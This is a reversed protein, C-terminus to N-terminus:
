DNRDDAEGSSWEIALIHRPQALGKLPRLGRDDVSVDADLEDAVRETVLIEGAGAEDAVRSALNVVRGLLDRDSHVAEGAHIGIRVPPASAGRHNLQEIQRQIDIACLVADSPTDFRALSGDGATGVEVGDWGRVATRVRSRHDFLTRQWAEDGMADNLATSGVIDIFMVAVWQRTGEGAAHSTWADDDAPDSLELVPWDGETLHRTRPTRLGATVGGHIGLAAGWTIIPWIPWFSGLSAGTAAWIAVLMSNIATYVVAHARLLKM